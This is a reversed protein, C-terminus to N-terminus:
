TPVANSHATGAGTFAARAGTLARQACNCSLPPNCHSSREPKESGQSATRRQQLLSKGAPADPRTATQPEVSSLRASVPACSAANTCQQEVHARTCLRPTKLVSRTSPAHSHPADRCRVHDCESPTHVIGSFNWVLTTVSLAGCVAGAQVTDTCTVPYTNNLNSCSTTNGRTHCPVCLYAQRTVPSPLYKYGVRALRWPWAAPAM